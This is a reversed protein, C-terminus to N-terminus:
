MAGEPIVNDSAAETPYMGGAGRQSQSSMLKENIEQLNAMGQAMQQMQKAQQEITAQMQMMQQQTSENERLVPLIREKGDVHLLEFLVSLPFLQGAQASMSYAQMFLENQAQQRLPNRRQVQVQVTYPPPPLHKGAKKGFLRAPDATVERQTVDGEKGGTVYLVRNKDYYQSILWMVQEVIAKFGQNLVNTRLRTIKGGAEQLASIASAATVGGATEGRTFQNQGSDQKIDTQLQLMQQTVAGTFPVTQMWQLASADIRDGEVVDSEWDLLADKDIGANRDVLLRGKSAMRLNMDIYSAYRNVYRMMPVCEQILGDGVPLGEIPTYVDLVFPYMGHNYVDEYKELLVGGALYGVNISYRRKEADYKRYWYEVLLTKPEDGPRSQQQSDAMGLGSYEGEDGGIDDALKPYHEEFWSKPHWSVKFVARSDQINECAPDWLFSEVPWRFIAVNGKGGDMDEDWAVQTVATGTAFCDEVRRRHLSEYNNRAMVFRVIDTLDEAVTELEKTEPLMLAEPMNDMQDAICNNFTSKLTQLQITKKDTKKNKTLADQLPDQLLLINRAERARDHMEKCGERWIRLRGYAEKVFEQDKENMLM